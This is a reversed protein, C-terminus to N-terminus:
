RRDRGVIRLPAAASQRDLLARRLMTRGRSIRSMVTGIPCEMATAIEQYTLEEVDALLVAFRYAEPLKDLALQMDASLVDGLREREWDYTPEAPVDDLDSVPLELRTKRWQSVWTNHLIRCLWARCNTGPDFSHFNAWAKLFTEQTLDEARDPGGLQRALRYVPTLHPLAIAEFRARTRMM